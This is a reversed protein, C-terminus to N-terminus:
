AAGAPADTPITLTVPRHDTTRKWLPGEPSPEDLFAPDEDFAYVEPPAELLARLAPSVVFHDIVCGPDTRTSEHRAGGPRFTPALVSWDAMPGSVLARLEPSDALSNFDGAVVRLPRVFEAPAADLWARLIELQKVRMEANTDPRPQWDPKGSKAHLVAASLELGSARHRFVGVVPARHGGGLVVGVPKPVRTWRLLEVRDSRWAWLVQPDQHDANAVFAGADDRVRWAPESATLLAEMAAPEVIEEFAILDADLSAILAGLRGDDGPGRLFKGNALDGHLAPSLGFWYANLTTLRMLVMEHHIRRWTLSAM